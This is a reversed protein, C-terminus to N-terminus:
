FDSKKFPRRNIKLKANAVTERSAAVALQAFRDMRRADKRNTHDTPEFGKVEGAFKTDFAEADFLTIYDIGSKGAVLNEWTTDTDLGLPSLIGIGTVVIRNINSDSITSM